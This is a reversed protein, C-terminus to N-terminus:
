DLQYSVKMGTSIRKFTTAESNHALYTGAEPSISDPDISDALAARSLSM